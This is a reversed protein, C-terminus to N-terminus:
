MSLFCVSNKMRLNILEKQKMLTHIRWTESLNNILSPTKSFGSALDKYFDINDQVKMELCRLKLPVKNLIKNTKMKAM